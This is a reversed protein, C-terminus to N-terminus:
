VEHVVVGETRTLRDPVFTVTGNVGITVTGANGPTGDHDRGWYRTTRRYYHLNGGMAHAAADL